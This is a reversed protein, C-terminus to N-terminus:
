RGDEKWRGDEMKRGGWVVGNWCDRVLGENLGWFDRGVCCYLCIGKEGEIRCM